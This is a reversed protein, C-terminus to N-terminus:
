IVQTALAFVEDAGLQAGAHFLDMVVPRGLSAEAESRLAALVQARRRDRANVVTQRALAYGLLRCSLERQGTRLALTAFVEAVSTHMGYRTALVLSETAVAVAAAIDESGLAAEIQALLAFALYQQARCAKAERVATEGYGLAAKPDGALLAADALHILVYCTLRTAGSQRALALATRLCDVGQQWRGCRTAVHGEHVYAHLRLVSSAGAARLTSAEDLALQAGICDGAQARETGLLLLAHHLEASDDGLTRWAQVAEEAAPVRPWAPMDVWGSSARTSLIHARARGHAEPLLPRVAALRRETPSLEGRLQDLVRLATLTQALVEIDRQECALVFAQEFDAYNAGFRALIAENALVPQAKRLAAAHAAMALGHKRRADTEGGATRAQALIHLRMSEYLRYRTPEGPEVRLLSKDVLNCLTDVCESESAQSAMVVHAMTSEFPGSFVALSSLAARQVDNLLSCSWDLTAQLTEHRAPTGRHTQQLLTLRDGLLRLVGSVGVAPARAAAMELALPIGDLQRCLEIAPVLNHPDISFNHDAERARKELLALAACCRAEELTAGMTPCELTALRYVQEGNVRLAQQSTALLHVQRANTLLAMALAAVEDIRHECNDLVLLGREDRLASALAASPEGPPLDIRVAAAVYASLPLRSPALALDVWWVSNDFQDAVGQAVAFALRTKGIGGTGALTVLRAERVLSQVASRDADRGLLPGHAAPLNPQAAHAPAVETSADGGAPEADVQLCYGRRVATRIWRHQTDGLCRRIEAIAQTLSDETVVVSPWVQTLLDDKSVVHGAQAGLMLLVELAKHRLQAPSGSPALLERRARDLVFRGIRIREVSSSPTSAM